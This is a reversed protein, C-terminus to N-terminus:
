PAMLAHIASQLATRVSPDKNTFDWQIGSMICRMYAAVYPGCDYSNCQQPPTRGPQDFRVVAVPPRAVPVPLPLVGKHDKVSAVIHPDAEMLGYWEGLRQLQRDGPVLCLTVSPDYVYVTWAAVDLVALSWHTNSVSVPVLWWRVAKFDGLPFVYRRWAPMARVRVYGGPDRVRPWFDASWVYARASGTAGGSTLEARAVRPAAAAGAGAPPPLAASAAGPGAGAASYGAAAGAGACEGAHVANLQGTVVDMIDSVVWGKGDLARVHSALVSALGGQFNIVVPDAVVVLVPSPNGASDPRAEDDDLVIVDALMVDGGDAEEVLDIDAGFPGAPGAAAGAGGAAAGRVASRAAASAAAGAAAGAAAAASAARHGLPRKARAAQAAAQLVASTAAEVAAAADQGATSIVVEAEVHEADALPAGSAGGVLGAAAGAGSVRVLAASSAAGGAAAAAAPAWRASTSAKLMAAKRQADWHVINTMLVRLVRQSRMLLFPTTLKDLM